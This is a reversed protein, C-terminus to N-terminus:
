SKLFAKFLKLMAKSFKRYLNQQAKKHRRKCNAKKNYFHDRIKRELGKEEGKEIEFCGLVLHWNVQKGQRFENIREFIFESQKATINKKLDIRIKDHALYISVDIQNADIHADPDSEKLEKM